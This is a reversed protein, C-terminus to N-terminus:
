DTTNRGDALGSSKRFPNLVAAIPGLYRRMDATGRIAVSQADRRDAAKHGILSM